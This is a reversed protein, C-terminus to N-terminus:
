RTLSRLNETKRFWRKNKSVLATNRFREPKQRDIWDSILPIIERHRHAVIAAVPSEADSLVSEFRLSPHNLIEAVMEPSGKCAALLLPSVGLPGATRFNVDLDPRSCLLRVVEVHGGKQAIHLPTMGEMTVMNVDLDGRNILMQVIETFGNATAFHLPTNGLFNAINVNITPVALLIRVIAVHPVSCAWHLATVGRLDVGNVDFLGTRLLM